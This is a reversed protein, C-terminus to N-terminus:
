PRNFDPDSDSDSDFTSSMFDPFSRAQGTTTEARSGEFDGQRGQRSFDSDPLLFRPNRPHRPQARSPVAPKGDAFDACDATGGESEWGELEEGRRRAEARSGGFYKNHKLTAQRTPHRPM